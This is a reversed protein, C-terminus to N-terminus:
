GGFRYAGIALREKFGLEKPEGDILYYDGDFEIRDTAEIDDRHYIRFEHTVKSQRESNNFVEKADKRIVEAYADCRTAWTTIVDGTADRSTVAQEICIYRDMKGANM